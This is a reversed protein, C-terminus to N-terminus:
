NPRHGNQSGNSHFLSDVSSAASHAYMKAFKEVIDPRQALDLGSLIGVVFASVSEANRLANIREDAIGHQKHLSTVQEELGKLRPELILQVKALSFAGDGNHNPSM